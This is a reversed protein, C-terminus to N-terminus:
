FFAVWVGGKRGDGDKKCFFISLYGRRVGKGTPNYGGRGSRPPCVTLTGLSLPSRCGCGDPWALGLGLLAGVSAWQNRGPNRQVPRFRNYKEVFFFVTNKSGFFTEKVSTSRSGSRPFKQSKRRPFFDFFAM